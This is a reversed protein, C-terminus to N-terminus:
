STRKYLGSPPIFRSSDSPDRFAILHFHTTLYSHLEQNWPIRTNDGPFLLVYQAQEFAALWVAIVPARVAASGNLEAGDTMAILTGQADVLAPCGPRTVFRDSAITYSPIDTVVCAGAPILRSVTAASPGGATPTLAAVASVGLWVLPVSAAVAVALARAAGARAGIRASVRALLRGAPLAVTLALFPGAFSGYHSYYLRPLLIMAVVAGFSLVAFIDLAWPRSVLYGAIVVVALVALVAVTPGASLSPIAVRGFLDSIRYLGASQGGPDSRTYQGSFVGGVFATPAMIWFPLSPIGFGAAAGGVLPVVRSRCRPIALLLLFVVGLPVLAWLKVAVAFGFAAGGLLLRRRSRTLKDGNFVALAALLCFLNLWPELLFTHSAELADPYVAYIGCAMVVTPVGRHRVLAGILIVCATDAAVTLMRAIALGWAAGTIKAVLAVPVMLLFSGPPQVDSFDRYPIVGGVLRLADGFLVGDDAETVGLLHGPKSLLWVRLLLAVAACAAIAVAV